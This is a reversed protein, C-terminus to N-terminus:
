LRSAALGCIAGYIVCAPRSLWISEKPPPLTSEFVAGEIGAIHVWPCGSEGRFERLGDKRTVLMSSLNVIMLPVVNELTDGRLNCSFHFYSGNCTDDRRYTKPGNAATQPAITGVPPAVTISDHIVVAPKAKEAKLGALERAILAYSAGLKSLDASDKAIVALHAAWGNKITRNSDAMASQNQHDVGLQFKQASQVAADRLHCVWLIGIIVAMGVIVYHRIDLFIKSM